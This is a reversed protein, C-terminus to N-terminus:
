ASAAAASAAKGSGSAGSGDKSSFSVTCSQTRMASALLGRTILACSATSDAATVSELALAAKKGVAEKEACCSYVLELIGGAARLSLPSVVAETLASKDIEPM